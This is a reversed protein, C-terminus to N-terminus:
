WWNTKVYKSIILNTKVPVYSISPRVFSNYLGEHLAISNENAYKSFIVNTKKILKLQCVPVLFM